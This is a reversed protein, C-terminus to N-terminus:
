HSTNILVERHSMLGPQISFSHLLLTFLLLDCSFMNPTALLQSNQNFSIVTKLYRGCVCVCVCQLLGCMAIMTQSIQSSLVIFYYRVLEAVDFIACLCAAIVFVQWGNDISLGSSVTDWTMRLVSDYCCSHKIWTTFLM